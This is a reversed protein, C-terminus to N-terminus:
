SVYFASNWPNKPGPPSPKSNVEFVNNKLGDVMPDLRATFWHQLHLCCTLVRVLCPQPSHM